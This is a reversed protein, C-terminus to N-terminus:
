LALVPAALRYKREGHSYHLYRLAVLSQAIRTVTSQPLGTRAALEGNGLWRDHPGFAGIVALARAFPVGMAAGERGVPRVGARCVSTGASSRKGNASSRRLRNAARDQAMDTGRVHM